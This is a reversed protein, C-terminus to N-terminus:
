GMRTSSSSAKLSAQRAACSSRKSRLECCRIPCASSSARRATSRSGSTRSPASRLASGWSSRRDVAWAAPNFPTWLVERLIPDAENPLVRQAGSALAGSLGFLGLGSNAFPIPAVCAPRSRSWWWHIASPSSRAASAGITPLTVDLAAGFGGDPPFVVQGHGKLVGPIDVGIGFGAPMVRTEDGITIRITTADVTVVGLSLSTQLDIDILLSGKGTRIDGIRLLDEPIGDVEWDGPSVLSM